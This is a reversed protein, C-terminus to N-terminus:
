SEAILDMVEGAISFFEDHWVNALLIITKKAEILRVLQVQHGAFGGGHEVCAGLAPHCSSPFPETGDRRAISWAFGYHAGWLTTVPIGENSLAPTFGEELTEMSVLQDTYLSQDWLLLDNASSWVSSGGCQKGTYRLLEYDDITTESVLEGSESRVYGLARNSLQVREQNPTTSCSGHMGLPEFIRERLFNAYSAGSVREIVMALLEFTMDMYEWKTGTPEKLPPHHTKWLELIETNGNDRNRELHEEALPKLDPLGSTMTMIHRISIGSYPFAPLYEQLSDDYALQGAEKLIMLAMCTFQKSLSAIRFRHDLTLPEKSEMSAPGYTAALVPEGHDAVIVGGNFKGDQHRSAFYEELKQKSM